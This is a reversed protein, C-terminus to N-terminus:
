SAIQSPAPRLAFAAALACIRRMPSSISVIGSAAKTASFYRSPRERDSQIPGPVGIRRQSSAPAGGEGKHLLLPARRVGIM